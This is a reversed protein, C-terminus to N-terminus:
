KVNDSNRKPIMPHARSLDYKRLTVFGLGALLLLSVYLPIVSMVFKGFFYEYLKPLIVVLWGVVVLLTLAVLIQAIRKILFQLFIFVAGLIFFTKAIGFIGRIEGTM